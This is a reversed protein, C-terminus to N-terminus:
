CLVPCRITNVHCRGDAAAAFVGVWVAKHDASYNQSCHHRGTCINKLLPIWHSMWFTVAGPKQATCMALTYASLSLQHSFDLTANYRVKYM